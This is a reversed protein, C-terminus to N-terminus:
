DDSRGTIRSNWVPQIVGSLCRFANGAYVASLSCHVAGGTMAWCPVTNSVIEENERGWESGLGEKTVDLSLLDPNALAVIARLRALDYGTM